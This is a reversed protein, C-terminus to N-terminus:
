QTHIVMARVCVCVSYVCSHPHPVHVHMRIPRILHLRLFSTCCCNRSADSDYCRETISGFEIHGCRTPCLLVSEICFLGALRGVEFRSCVLEFRFHTHFCFVFCFCMIRQNTSNMQSITIPLTM